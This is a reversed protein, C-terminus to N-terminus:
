YRKAYAESNFAIKPFEVGFRSHLLSESVQYRGTSNDILQGHPNVVIYASVIDSTNEVVPDLAAHRATFAAFQDDNVLLDRGSDNSGEIAIMRLLKWRDPRLERILGSFDENCNVANVVTNIKFRMGCEHIAAAKVALDARSLTHRTGDHRGLLLNQAESLGDVSIGIMSVKGTNSRIFEPTLLSGDTIISCDVGLRHIYDIMGQVYPAALPEGGALNFRKVRVDCVIHDIIRKWDELALPTIGFRAYCFRCHYNCIDTYHLNIVKENMNASMNKM